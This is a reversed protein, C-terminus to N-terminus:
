TNFLTEHSVYKVINETSCSKGLSSAREEMELKMRENTLLESIHEVVQKRDRAKMGAGNQIVFEENGTEQGYLSRYFIGIRGLALMEAVTLGGAKTVVVDSSAMYRAIDETYGLITHHKGFVQLRSKLRENRGCVVVFHVHKPDFREIIWSVDESTFIGYTGANILVVFRDGIGMSRKLAKRDWNRCFDKRLPIGLPLKRGEPVFRGSWESPLIYAHNYKSIWLKHPKYDTIVMIHKINPLRKAYISGLFHTSILIDPSLKRLYNLLKTNVFGEMLKRLPDAYRESVNYIFKWLLRGLSNRMMWLYANSTLDESLTRFNRVGDVHEVPFANEKFAQYLARASVFHGSGYDFSLILIRLTRRM